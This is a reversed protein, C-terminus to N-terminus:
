GNKTEQRPTIYKLTQSGPYLETLDASDPISCVSARWINSSEWSEGAEDLMALTCSRQSSYGQLMSEGGRRKLFKSVKFTLDSSNELASEIAQSTITGELHSLSTPTSTWCCRSLVM